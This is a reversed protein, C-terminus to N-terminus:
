TEIMREEMDHLRLFTFENVKHSPSTYAIKLMIGLGAFNLSTLLGLIIVWIFGTFQHTYEPIVNYSIVVFFYFVLTLDLIRRFM